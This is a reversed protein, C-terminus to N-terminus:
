PRRDCFRDLDGSSLSVGLSSLLRLGYSSSFTLSREYEGRVVRAVVFPLSSLYSRLSSLLSLSEFRSPLRRANFVTSIILHSVYIRDLCFHAPYSHDFVAPCSTGQVLFVVSQASVKM